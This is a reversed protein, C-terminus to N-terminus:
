FPLDADPDTVPEAFKGEGRAIATVTNRPEGNQTNEGVEVTVKVPMGVFASGDADLEVGLEAFRAKTRWIGASSLPTWDWLSHGELDFKWVLSAGEKWASVETIHGAYEGEALLGGEVAAAAAKRQEDNLLSM